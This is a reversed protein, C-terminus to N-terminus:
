RSKHAVRADLIHKAFLDHMSLAVYKCTAVIVVTFPQASFALFHARLKRLQFFSSLSPHSLRRFYSAIEEDALRQRRSKRTRTRIGRANQVTALSFRLVTVRYTEDRSLFLLITRLLFQKRERSHGNSSHFM